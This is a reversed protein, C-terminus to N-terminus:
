ADLVDDAGTSEAADVCEKAGAAGVPGVGDDAVTGKGSNATGDAGADADVSRNDEVGPVTAAELGGRGALRPQGGLELFM